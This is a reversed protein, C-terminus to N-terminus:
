LAFRFKIKQIENKTAYFAVFNPMHLSYKMIGCMVIIFTQFTEYRLVSLTYM